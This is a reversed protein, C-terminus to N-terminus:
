VDVSDDKIYASERYANTTTTRQSSTVTKLIGEVLREQLIYCLLLNIFLKVAVRLALLM